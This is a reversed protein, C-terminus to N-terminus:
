ARRRGAWIAAPVGLAFFPSILPIVTESWVKLGFATKSLAAAVILAAAGALWAPLPKKRGLAASLAERTLSLLLALMLFDPLVWVATVLAEIRELAHSIRLNRLLIFFPQSLRVTLAAGLVGVAAACIAAATLCLRAAWRGPRVARDAAGPAFLALAFLTGCGVNLVPVAGTLLGAGDAPLTKLRAWHMQPVACLAALLLIATLAPLFIEAARCLAKREGGAAFVVPVLLGLAFPLWGRFVGLATLFREASMRLLFGGYLLFWLGCLGLVVRGPRDGLARCVTEPTPAPEGGLTRRLFLAYLLLIPLAALPSLWGANGAAALPAGPVIRLLPSLVAMTGLARVQRPTLANM